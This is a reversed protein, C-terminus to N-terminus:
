DRECRGFGFFEIHFTKELLWLIGFFFAAYLVFNVLFKEWGGIGIATVIINALADAALIAVLIGICFIGWKKVTSMDM